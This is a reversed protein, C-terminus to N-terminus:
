RFDLTRRNRYFPGSSWESLVRKGDLGVAATWTASDFQLTAVASRQDNFEFQLTLLDLPNPSLSYTTGSVTRAIRPTKASATESVPEAVRALAQALKQHGGLNEAIAADSRIAKFVFPAIDDTNAGGGTFVLVM